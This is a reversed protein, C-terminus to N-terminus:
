PAAMMRQPGARKGYALAARGTHGVPGARLAPPIIPTHDDIDGGLRRGFRGLAL